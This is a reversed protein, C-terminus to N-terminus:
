IFYHEIMLIKFNDEKPIIYGKLFNETFYILNIRVNYHLELFCLEKRSVIKNYYNNEKDLVLISQCYPYCYFDYNINVCYSNDDILYHTFILFEM